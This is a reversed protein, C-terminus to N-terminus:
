GRNKRRAAKAAKRRERRNQVRQGTQQQRAVQEGVPVIQGAQVAQEFEAQHDDLEQRLEMSLLRQAYEDPEYIRGSQTDM